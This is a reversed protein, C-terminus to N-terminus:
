SRLVDVAARTQVKTDEAVTLQAAIAQPFQQPATANGWRDFGGGLTPVNGSVAPVVDMQHVENYPPLAVTGFQKLHWM